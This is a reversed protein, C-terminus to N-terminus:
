KECRARKSNVSMGGCLVKVADQQLIDLSSKKQDIKLYKQFNMNIYQISNKNLKFALEAMMLSQCDQDIHSILMPNFLIMRKAIMEFDSKKMINKSIKTLFIFKASSPNKDLAFVCQEFNPDYIFYIATPDTELLIMCIKKTRKEIPVHQMLFTHKQIASITRSETKYINPLYMYAFKTSNLADDILNQIQSFIIRGEDEPIKEWNLFVFRIVMGDKQIANKVIQYTYFQPSAYNLVTEPFYECALKVLEITQKDVRALGDRSNKVYFINKEDQSLNEDPIQEPKLKCLGRKPVIFKRIAQEDM